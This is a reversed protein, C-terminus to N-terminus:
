PKYNVKGIVSVKVNLAYRALLKVYIEQSNLTEPTNLRLILNLRDGNNLSRIGTSDLPIQAVNIEPERTIGDLDLFPTALVRNDTVEYLVTDGANLIQLDVLASFPLENASVVRISVSDAEDFDVGGDLDFDVERTLNDLKLEMPLSVDIFATIESNPILFNQQNVGPPNSVASVEFTLQEPTSGFIENLTSNSANLSVLSQASSGVENVTPAAVNQLTTAASGELFTTDSLGTTSDTEVGYVRAFSVGIPVGFSNEFNFNIQPDRFEIGGDGGLEDFFTVDISQNGVEITDQGFFGYLVTFSQDSYTLTFSIADNATIEQGAQLQISGTFNGQFENRTGSPVLTTKYGALDQTQVVTNNNLTGSFVVPQNNAIRITNGVTFDYDITSSLTSSVEFTLTGADYIVSDLQENNVPQYIFSYTSDLNVAVPAPVPATIPLSVTQSNSVDPISIFDSDSSYSITDRYTLSLLTTISDEEIEVEADDAEDILERMTYTFEGIPFAFLGNLTPTEINDFDIDSVNCSWFVLLAFFIAVFKKM